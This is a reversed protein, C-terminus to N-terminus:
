SRDIELVTLSVSAVIKECSDCTRAVFFGVRMEGFDATM